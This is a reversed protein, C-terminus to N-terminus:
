TLGRGSRDISNMGKSFSVEEVSINVGFQAPKMSVCLGCSKGEQTLRSYLSIQGAAHGKTPGKNDTLTPLHM